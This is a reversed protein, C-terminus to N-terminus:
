SVESAELIDNYSQPVLIKIGRPITCVVGNLGITEDPKQPEAKPNQHLKVPHREQLLLRVALVNRSKALETLKHLVPQAEPDFEETPSFQHVLLQVERDAADIAAKSPEFAQVAEDRAQFADQLRERLSKVPPAAPTDVPASVAVEPSEDLPTPKPM